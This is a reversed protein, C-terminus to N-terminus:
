NVNSLISCKFRICIPKWKRFLSLFCNNRTTLLTALIVGSYKLNQNWNCLTWWFFFLLYSLKSEFYIWIKKIDKNNIKNCFMLFWNKWRKKHKFIIQCCLRIKSRPSFLLNSKGSPTRSLLKECHVLWVENGYRDLLTIGM